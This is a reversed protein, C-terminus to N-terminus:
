VSSFNYGETFINVTVFMEVCEPPVHDLDIRIREDDGTESGSTNDGRHTIGSGQKRGYYIIDTKSKDEGLCIISADFDVNQKCTWGLGVIIDIENPLVAVDDKKMTFTSEMSLVREYKLGDDIFKDVEKRIDEKCDQFNRGNTTVGIEVSSWQSIM